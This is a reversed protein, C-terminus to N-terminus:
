CLLPSENFQQEVDSDKMALSYFEKFHNAWEIKSISNNLTKKQRTGACAQAEKWFAGSQEIISSM